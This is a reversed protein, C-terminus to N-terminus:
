DDYGGVHADDNLKVCGESPAKWCKPSSSSPGGMEGYIRKNAM